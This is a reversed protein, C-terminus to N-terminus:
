IRSWRWAATPLCAMPALSSSSRCRRPGSRSRPTRACRRAFASGARWRRRRPPGSRCIAPARRGCEDIAGAGRAADVAGRYGGGENRPSWGSGLIPLDLVKSDPTLGSELAALYVFLKFASGPQRKAKLARNFQSEAYSRGGVVARMGGDLDM